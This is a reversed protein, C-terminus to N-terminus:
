GLFFLLWKAFLWTPPLPAILPHSQTTRRGGFSYFVASTTSSPSPPASALSRATQSPPRGRGSNPPLGFM